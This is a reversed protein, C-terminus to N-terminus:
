DIMTEETKAGISTLNINSSNMVQRSLKSKIRGLENASINDEFKVNGSIPMDPLVKSCILKCAHLLNLIIVKTADNATQDIERNVHEFLSTSLIPRIEFKHYYKLKHLAEPLHAIGILCMIGVKFINCGANIGVFFNARLTAIRSEIQIDFWVLDSKPLLSL